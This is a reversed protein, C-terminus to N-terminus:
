DDGESRGDCDDAYRPCQTCDEIVDCYTVREGKLRVIEKQNMLFIKHYQKITDGQMEVLTNLNAIQTDVAPAEHIHEFAWRVGKEWEAPMDSKRLDAMIQKELQKRSIMDGMNCM